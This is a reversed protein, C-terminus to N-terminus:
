AANVLVDLLHVADELTRPPQVVRGEHDDAVVTLAKLQRVLVVTHVAAGHVLRLHPWISLYISPYISLRLPTVRWMARMSRPEAIGPGECGVIM